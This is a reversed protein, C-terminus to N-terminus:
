PTGHGGAGLADVVFREFHAILRESEPMLAGSEIMGSRLGRQVREVLVRDEAGVQEDLELYDAIWGEDTGPAFFYDLFRHTREPSLPVIPGISLNCSGPMVNITTNPFLLHFQGREVEGAADYVGGGGNKPPGYQSSFTPREELAYADPSVDIAKAFSPHAIACHYCELYNEACVKWNADYDGSSRQHFSLAGVDVGGDALLRPLDGLHDALPAAGPDPNAFVFPGWTDAQVPVLGLGARDFGPESDSRPASGLSGDLDYTWAHYPCQLTQRRGTGECLLYGRHRCVNVFGRLDGDRDRVLLVPVQGASTAVFSGPESVEGAHAVYQWSHRFIREQELRLVEADAYWDWPISSTGALTAM